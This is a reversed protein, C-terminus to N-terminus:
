FDPKGDGDTDVPPTCPNGNRGEIDDPIGDGDSDTDLYDPKGDRDTDRPPSEFAGEDKDSIGDGDSDKPPHTCMVGFGSFDLGGDRPRVPDRGGQDPGCAFAVLCLVVCRKM